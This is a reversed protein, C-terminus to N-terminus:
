RLERGRNGGPGNKNPWRTLDDMELWRHIDAASIWQRPVHSDITGANVTRGEALKLRAFRKAEATQFIETVRPASRRGAARAPGDFADYWTDKPNLVMAPLRFPLRSRAEYDAPPTALRNGFIM